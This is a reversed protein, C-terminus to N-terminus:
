YVTKITKWRCLSHNCTAGWSCFGRCDSLNEVFFIYPGGNGVERALNVATVFRSPILGWCHPITLCWTYRTRWTKWRSEPHKVTAAASFLASLRDHHSYSVEHWRQRNARHTHQIVLLNCPSQRTNKKSYLRAPFRVEGNNQALASYTHGPPTLTM